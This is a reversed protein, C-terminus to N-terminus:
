VGIWDEALSLTSLDITARAVPYKVTEIHLQDWQFQWRLGELRKLYDLLAFYRGQVVVEVHHRFVRPVGNQASADGSATEGANDQAAKGKRDGPKKAGPRAETIVPEVGTNRLAILKLHKDGALVDRLVKVMQAPSIVRATRAKLAKDVRDIKAHLQQLRESQGNGSLVDIQQRIQAASADFQAAQQQAQRARQVAQTQEQVMPVRVLTNWAVLAVAALAAALLLRERRTRENIRSELEHLRRFPTM